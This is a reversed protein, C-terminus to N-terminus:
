FQSSIAAAPTNSPTMRIRRFRWALSPSERTYALSLDRQTRCPKTPTVETKGPRSGNHYDLAQQKSILM